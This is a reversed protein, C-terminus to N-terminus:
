KATYLFIGSPTQKKLKFKGLPFKYSIIRTGPRLEKLFKDELYPLFSPMNYLFVVTAEELKAHQYSQCKVSVLKKLGYRYAFLKTWIVLYPNIEWGRTHAGKKSAEILLRGDGSGLDFVIDSKNINALTMVETIVSMPTPVFPAGTFFSVFFYCLFLVLLSLFLILLYETFM